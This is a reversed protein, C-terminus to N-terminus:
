RGKCHAISLSSMLGHCGLYIAFSKFIFFSEYFNNLSVSANSITFTGLGIVPYNSGGPLQIAHRIESDM